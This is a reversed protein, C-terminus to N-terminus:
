PGSSAPPCAPLWAPVGAPLCAPLCAPLSGLMRVSRAVTSWPHIRAHPRASVYIALQGTSGWFTTFSAAHPGYNGDGSSEWARAGRGHDMATILNAALTPPVSRTLARPRM